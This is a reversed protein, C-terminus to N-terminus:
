FDDIQPTYNLKDYLTNNKVNEQLWKYNIYSYFDENPKYKEKNSLAKKFKDIVNRELNYASSFFDVKNLQFMEELKKEFAKYRGPCNNNNSSKKFTNLLQYKMKTSIKKTKNKNLKKIVKSTKGM